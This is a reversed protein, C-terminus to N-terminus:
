SVFLGVRGLLLALALVLLLEETVPSYFLALPRFHKCITCASLTM